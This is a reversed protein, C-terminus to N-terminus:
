NYIKWKLCQNRLNKEFEIRPLPYSVFYGQIEDCGLQILCEFVDQDEVGEAVVKLQLEHALAIITKVIAMDEKKKLIERVYSQDIKICDFPFRKLYNLSTFGTGFDDISVVIGFERLKKVNNLCEETNEIITTETIELELLEPALGTENLVKEVIKVFNPHSFQIASINVAIRLPNVLELENWKKNQLCANNLVWEDIQWIIGTEEAIPIFENPPINGLIPNNWRLLAEMSKIKNDKVSLKPQFFLKLEENEIATRLFNEIHLYKQNAQKMTQDYIKYSNKGMSKASYMATDARKILIDIDGGHDPFISIGISGTTYLETRNSFTIKEKFVDLLNSTFNTFIENDIIDPLLIIFEDGAFRYLNGKQNIVKQLRMSVIKLLEDGFTHGLSDNIFKFRDLDLMFLAFRNGCGIFKKIDEVFKRRNPLSTLSDHYALYEVEEKASILDSVDNSCGILNIIKGNEYIPSLTTLVHHDKFSYDYTLTQGMYSKEYNAELLDGIESPFVERPSKQYINPTDVGLKHALKGEGFQYSFQGSDDRTVKFVFNHMTSIVSNFDNKLVKVLKEESEKGKTIDTRLAFFMYPLNNENCFPVITSKVWYLSGDKARNKINGEWIEGKLITKWMNQYFSKDHYGSNLIRHTKGIIENRSYKSIEFFKKNAYLIKGSVDTVALIISKDIAYKVRSFTNLSKDIINILQNLQAERERKQNDNKKIALDRLSNILENYDENDFSNLM